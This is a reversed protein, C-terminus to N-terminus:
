TQVPRIPVPRIPDPQRKVRNRVWDRGPKEIWRYTFYSVAVVVALFIAYAIDGHWLETGLADRVQGNIEQHTFPDIHWLKELARGADFLRRAIFVHTM